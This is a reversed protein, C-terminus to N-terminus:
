DLPIHPEDLMEAGKSTVLLNTEIRCGTKGEIYVGPEVALVMGEEVTGPFGEEVIPSEHVNLGVGHGIRHKPQPYGKMKIINRAARAITELRDGPKTAEFAATVSERVTTLIDLHERDPQGVVFTRTIDSNYGEVRAGLDVVLIGHPVVKTSGSIHHPISANKEYQVHVFSKEAGNSEMELSAIACLNSETLQENLKKKIANLSQAALKVAKRIKDLEDKTKIMRLARIQDSFPVLQVGMKSLKLYVEVSLESDDIALKKGVLKKEEIVEELRRMAAELPLTTASRVDSIKGTKEAREWEFDKVLLVPESRLPVVIGSDELGQVGSLYQLVVNERAKNTQFHIFGDLGRSALRGLLRELIQDTMTRLTCPHIILNHQTL